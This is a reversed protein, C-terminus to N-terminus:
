RWTSPSRACPTAWAAPWPEVASLSSCSMSNHITESSSSASQPPARAPRWIWATRSWIPAIRRPSRARWYGPTKSTRATSGFMPASPPSQRLKLPNATKAAVVTVELGRHRGSYALAQGLNGASACVVRSAGNERAAAAVTETGRGKFCRVPNLTEVKLTVSCGLARGLPECQLAPTDLFAPDIEGVAARVRDLRLRARDFGSVARLM